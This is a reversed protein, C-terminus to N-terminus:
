GVGLVLIVNNPGTGPRGHSFRREWNSKQYGFNRVFHLGSLFVYFYMPRSRCNYQRRRTDRGTMETLSTEFPM